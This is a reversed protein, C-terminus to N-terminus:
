RLAAAARRAAASPAERRAVRCRRRAGLAVRKDCTCCRCRAPTAVFCFAYRRSDRRFFRRFVAPPPLSIPPSVAIIASAAAYRCCFAVAYAYYDHRLMARRFFLLSTIAADKSAFHPMFRFAAYRRHRRLTPPTAASFILM